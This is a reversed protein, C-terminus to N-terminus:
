HSHIIEKALFGKESEARDLYYRMLLYLVMLGLPCFICIIFGPPTRVFSLFIGLKPVTVSVKGQIRSIPTLFPDPVPNADGKTVAYLSGEEEQFAVIRHVIERQPNDPDNFLVVDGVSLEDQGSATIVVADDNQLAPSMSNGSVINFPAFFGQAVILFNSILSFALMAVVVAFLGISLLRNLRRM